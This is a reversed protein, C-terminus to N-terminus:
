SGHQAELVCLLNQQLCPGQSAHALAVEAQGTRIAHAAEGIRELGAVMPTAAMMAGGSPNVRVDPALGLARCLIGEEHAWLAHLEAVEVAKDRLGLRDASQRVAPAQSLDRLGPQHQEVRHDMGTIWAVPGKIAAPTALVVAAAGDTWRPLDSNRLPAWTKPKKLLDEARLAGLGAAAHCRAVVNSFDSESALGSEIVARAQMAAMAHPGIGLPALSYPDLQLTSIATMDGVSSKGFAYVVAVDLDGHQLRVWAEYLAWAGDMEVHSEARPPWVGAGDLAGVFSFPRGMVYDASGSCFFGVESRDLQAQELAASVVVRVMDAEEGDTYASVPPLRHYGVIGIPKM